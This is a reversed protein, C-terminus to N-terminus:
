FILFVFRFWSTSSLKFEAIIQGTDQQSGRYRSITFDVSNRILIQIVYQMRYNLINLSYKFM